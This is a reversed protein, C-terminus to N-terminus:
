RRRDFHTPREFYAALGARDFRMRLKRIAEYLTGRPTRTEKSIESVTSSQLRNCLARLDAPLEALVKEVDFRLDRLEEQTRSVAGTERLYVDQDLLSTKDANLGLDDLRHDDPRSDNSRHEDDISYACQRYDRIGAKQWEIITAIHHEVLRTIFTERKAIAPDFRPLRRLLDIVLEQELDHRDAEVFGARGVLQRAKHKILRVAYEDLGKYKNENGM